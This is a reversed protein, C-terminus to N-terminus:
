RGAILLRYLLLNVGPLRLPLLNYWRTLRFLGRKWRPLRATIEAVLLRAELASLMERDVRGLKAYLLMQLYTRHIIGLLLSAKRLREADPLFKQHYRVASEAFSALLRRPDIVKREEAIRYYCDPATNRLRYRVDPMLLARTHLEVDQHRSFSEDFGGMRQLFARDWIPQMTQWPLKHSFFDALADRTIPVWRQGHDGPRVRFVEMTSVAFHHGSGEMLALRRQVCHRELLDDADLFIICGGRAASIGINRCHNAGKNEALPMVTIRPDAAAMRNLMAVTGDTSADDVVILEWRPDTQVQVSRVMDGIFGQKNFSPVIISVAPAGESPRAFPSPDPLVPELAMCAKVLLYQANFREKTFHDRAFAMLRHVEDASPKRLLLADGPALVQGLGHTRVMASFDGVCDSIAVPLGASLYEAFKTPSAVRNTIRDERLLLGLDCDQLIARVEQHRVWRQAVQEPFRQAMRAIVAHETSLFLMRRQPDDMLWPSVVREALELSQWGVSTGSYVLVTDDAGWGLEARLGNRHREPLAEVSRGMTCPIVTHRRANYGFIRRWHEVLSESVAMRLDARAVVERELLECEEILRDDDVVRYEQWEAGYAARADFCVEQVLGRDRMRLGLATAFIGRGIIGSPRLWQCVAWLWLWNAKWYHQRPVMPLVLADPVRSRIRRRSVMYGRLSVLAVLRVRDGGLANLHDVVDTVQSWYVGSPQDNYTLYIIV